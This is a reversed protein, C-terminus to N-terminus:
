LKGHWINKLVDRIYEFQNLEVICLEHNRKVQLGIYYKIEGMNSM